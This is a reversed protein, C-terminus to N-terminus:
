FVIQIYLMDSICKSKQIMKLIKQHAQVNMDAEKKFTVIKKILIL